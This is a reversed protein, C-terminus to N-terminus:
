HGPHLSRAFRVIVAVASTHLRGTSETAPVRQVRHVGTEWKFTDYSGPGKIELIVEKFAGKGGPLPSESVVKSSWGKGSSITPDKESVRQSIEAGWIDAYRLYMRMLDAVFIAAEDGGAGAKLEVLASVDATSSKPILLQPFVENILHSATDQLSIAEESALNRLSPDPDAFM